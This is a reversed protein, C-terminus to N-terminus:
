GLSFSNLNYLNTMNLPYTQYSPQINTYVYFSGTDSDFKLLSINNNM